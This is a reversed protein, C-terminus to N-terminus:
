DLFYNVLDDIDNNWRWDHSNLEDWIVDALEEPSYKSADDILVSMNPRFTVDSNGTILDSETEIGLEYAYNINNLQRAYGVHRVWEWEIIIANPNIEEGYEIVKYNLNSYHLNTFDSILSLVYDKIQGKKDTCDSIVLGNEKFFEHLDFDESEYLTIEIEGEEFENTNISDFMRQAKGKDFFAGIIGNETPNVSENLVNWKYANDYDRFSYFISYVKTM